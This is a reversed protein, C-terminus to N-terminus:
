AAEAEELASVRVRLVNAADDVNRTTTPVPVRSKEILSYALSALTDVFTVNPWRAERMEKPLAIPFETCGLVIVPYRNMDGHMRQYKAILSDVVLAADDSGEQIKNQKIGDYISRMAVEQTERDPTIWELKKDHDQYLRSAITGDTAMLAIHKENPRQRKIEDLAADAIHLLQINHGQTAIHDVLDPHFRHATNCTIVAHTVGAEAMLDLSKKMEPRPDVADQMSEHGAQKKIFSTRDAIHTAQHVLVPRTDGLEVLEGMFQAGALAGQGGMVGAKPTYRELAELRDAVPRTFPTVVQKLSLSGLCGSLCGESDSESDSGDNGRARKAQELAKGAAAANSDIVPIMTGDARRVHSEGFADSLGPYGLVIADIDNRKAMETVANRLAERGARIQDKGADPREAELLADHSGPHAHFAKNGQARSQYVNTQFTRPSVILGVNRAGPNDQDLKELASTPLDILEMNPAFKALHQRLVGVDAHAATDTVIAIGAGTGHLVDIGRRIGATAAEGREGAPLDNAQVLVADAHQQDTVNGAQRVLESAFRHGAKPDTSLVGIRRQYENPKPAASPMARSALPLTHTM